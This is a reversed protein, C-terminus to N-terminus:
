KYSKVENTGDCNRMYDRRARKRANANQSVHYAQKKQNGSWQQEFSADGVTQLERFRENREHEKHKEEERHQLQEGREVALVATNGELLRQKAEKLRRDLIGDNVALRGHTPALKSFIALTSSGTDILVTFTQRPSGVSVNVFYETRMKNISVPVHDIGHKSQEEDEPEVIEVQGRHRKIMPIKLRDVTGPEVPHYLPNRPAIGILPTQELEVSMIDFPKAIFCCRARPAQVHVECVCSLYSTCSM